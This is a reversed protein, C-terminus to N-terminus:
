HILLLGILLGAILALSPTQSDDDQLAKPMIEVFVVYLIIIGAFSLAITLAFDGMDGLIYGLIAGVVMPIGSLASILVVKVKSMGSSLLPLAQAMGVPINHLAIAIAIAITSSALVGGDNVYAVGISMGEPLNHLAVGFILVIGGVFLSREANQDDHTHHKHGCCHNCKLKHHIFYHLYHVIILGITMIGVVVLHNVGTDLAHVLLDFVAIALMVGGALSLILAMLRPSNRNFLTVIYAGFATVIVDIIFTLVILQFM